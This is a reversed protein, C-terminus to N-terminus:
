RISKLNRSPRILVVLVWSPLGYATPTSPTSCCGEVFNFISFTWMKTLAFFRFQGNLGLVPCTYWFFQCGWFLRVDGKDLDEMYIM